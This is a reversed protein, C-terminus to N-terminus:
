AIFTPQSLPANLAPLEERCPGCWTAWLNLLTVKKGAFPALKTDAGDLTGLQKVKQRAQAM